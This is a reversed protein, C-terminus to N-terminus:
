KRFDVDFAIGASGLKKMDEAALKIFPKAHLEDFYITLTTFGDYLENYKKILPLKDELRNLFAVFREYTNPADMNKTKFWLKATKNKGKSQALLNKRYATYGFEKELANVDCDKKFQLHLSFHYINNMSKKLRLNKGM